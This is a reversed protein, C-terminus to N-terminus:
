ISRIRQSSDDFAQEDEPLLAVVSYEAYESFYEVLTAIRDSDVAELSDLIILPLMEYVENALYGALAFVLGTVERESESLHDVTDEYATGSENTRVIHLEFQSRDVKRRGERVQREVREIWIRDLNEYDLLELVTEMHTNFQDVAREEIQEIRTRMDVLAEKVQERETKLDDREDLASEIREIEEIVSELDSSLQGIEFEIQNAERHKDLIGEFEESQLTEVDSELAELQKELENREEALETKRERREEIEDDIGALQSELDSRRERHQKIERRESQLDDLEAEIDRIRELNKQRFQRLQEITTEIQDAEVDSGCTWCVTTSEVLQDTVARDHEDDYDLASRLDNRDGELMEENFQIINQLEGMTSDITRKRERLREIDRDIEDVDTGTDTEIDNLDSEVDGHEAELSSISQSETEIRQRVQELDSRTERLDDLKSELAEKEERSEEVTADLSELDSKAAELDDKKEDIQAELDAKEKELPPLRQEANQLEELQNDIDRRDSELREIEANIEETDIPRMIVERLDDGRAVAQRAENNELLFAFLDAAEPDDLYPEGALAITNEKRTMTRTYTDDGISLEVEGRDADGKLTAHDSGLALMIAQLLSTRNTANRGALITVGSTFEVDASSIGGVNQATVRVTDTTIQKSSMTAIRGISVFAHQKVTM